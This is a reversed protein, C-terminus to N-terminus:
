KKVVDAFRDDQRLVRLMTEFAGGIDDARAHPVQILVAEPLEAKIDGTPYGTIGHFYRVLDFHIAKGAWLEIAGFMARPAKTDEPVLVAKATERDAPSCLLVPRNEAALVFTFVAQSKQKANMRDVHIPVHGRLVAYAAPHLGDPDEVPTVAFPFAASSPGCLERIRNAIADVDGPLNGTSFWGISVGM